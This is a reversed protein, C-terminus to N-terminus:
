RMAGWLGLGLLPSCALCFCLLAPPTPSRAPPRTSRGITPARGRGVAPARGSARHCRASPRRSLPSPATEGVSAGMEAYGKVSVCSGRRPDAVDPVTSPRIVRRPRAPHVRTLPPCHVRAHRAQATNTGTRKSRSRRATPSSGPRAM